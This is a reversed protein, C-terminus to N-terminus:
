NAIISAFIRINMKPHDQHCPGKKSTSPRVLKAKRGGFWASREFTQDIVM